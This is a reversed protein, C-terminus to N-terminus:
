AGDRTARYVTVRHHTFAGVAVGIALTVIVVVLFRALGVEGRLADSIDVVSEGGLIAPINTAPVFYGLAGLLGGLGGAIAGLLTGDRLTAFVDLNPPSFNLLILVLPLVVVLAIYPRAATHAIGEPGDGDFLAWIGAFAGLAVGALLLTVAQMLGARAPGNM